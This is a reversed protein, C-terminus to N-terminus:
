KLVTCKVQNWVIEAAALEEDRSLGKSFVDCTAWNKKAYLDATTENPNNARAIWEARKYDNFHRLTGAIANNIIDDM